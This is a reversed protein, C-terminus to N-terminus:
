VKHEGANHLQKAIRLLWGHNKQKTKIGKDRWLRTNRESNDRVKKYM